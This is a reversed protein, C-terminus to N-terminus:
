AETESVCIPSTSVFKSQNYLTETSAKRRQPTDKLTDWNITDIYASSSSTTVVRTHHDPSSAVGAILAPILLKTFYFPGLVNTGFQLDYGDKTTMTIPPWM